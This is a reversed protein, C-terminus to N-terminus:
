GGHTINRPERRGLLEHAIRPQARPYMGRPLHLGTPPAGLFAAAFQADGHDFSSPHSDFMMGMPFSFKLSEAYANAFGFGNNGDGTFQQHGDPVHETLLRGIDMGIHLGNGARQV